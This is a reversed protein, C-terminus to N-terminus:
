PKHKRRRTSITAFAWALLGIPILAGIVGAIILDRVAIPVSSIKLNYVDMAVASNGFQDAATFSLTANKEVPVFFIMHWTENTVNYALPVTFVYGTSNEYSGTANGVVNTLSSGNPYRILVPLDLNTGAYVTSNTPVVAFSFQAPEVLTTYNSTRANGYPDRASWTINYQGLTANQVLYLSSSWQGNAPDFNLPPLWTRNGASVQLTVSSNLANGDPYLVTNNLILFTTRETILPTDAEFTLNAPLVQFGTSSLSPGQGRDGYQDTFNLPSFEFHYAGTPASPPPAWTAAWEGSTSNTLTLPTGYQRQGAVVVAATVNATTVPSGNPYSLQYSTGVPLTREVHSAPATVAKVTISCPTVTATSKATTHQHNDYTIGNFTINLKGSPTSPALWFSYDFEGHDRATINVPFGPLTENASSVGVTITSNVAFGGGALMVTATREYTRSNTGVVGFHTVAERTDSTESRSLTLVYTGSPDRASINLLVSVPLAVRMQLFSLGTMNPADQGPKQWWLYYTVNPVIYQATVRVQGGVGWISYISQDTGITSSVAQVPLSYTLLFTVCAFAVVCTILARFANM